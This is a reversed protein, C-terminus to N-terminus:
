NEVGSTVESFGPGDASSLRDGAGGECLSLLNGSSEPGM